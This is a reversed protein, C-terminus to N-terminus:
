DEKEYKKKLLLYTAREKEEKKSLEKKEKEIRKCRAAYEKDTELRDHTYVIDTSDYYNRIFLKDLIDKDDKLEKFKQKFHNTIDNLMNSLSTGSYQTIDHEHSERIMIRRPIM